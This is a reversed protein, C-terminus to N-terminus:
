CVCVCVCVCVKQFDPCGRAHLVGMAQRFSSAPSPAEVPDATNNNAAIAAALPATRTVAALGRTTRSGPVLWEYSHQAAPDYPPPPPLALLASWVPAFQVSKGTWGLALWHQLGVLYHGTGFNVGRSDALLNLAVLSGSSVKEPWRGNAALALRGKQCCGEAM